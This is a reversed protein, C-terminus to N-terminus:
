SNKQALNPVDADSRGMVEDLMAASITVEPLTSDEMDVLAENTEISEFCGSPVDYPSDDFNWEIDAENALGEILQNFEDSSALKSIDADDPLVAVMTRSVYDISKGSQVIQVRKM